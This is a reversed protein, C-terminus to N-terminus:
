VQLENPNFHAVEDLLKKQQAVTLGPGMDRVEIRVLAGTNINSSSQRGNRDDGDAEDGLVDDVDEGRLSGSSRGHRSSRRGITIMPSIPSVRSFRRGIQKLSGRNKAPKTSAQEVDHLICRIRVSVASNRSTQRIANSVLTRIAMTMKHKDIEIMDETHLPFEFERLPNDKRKENADDAEAAGLDVIFGVGKDKAMTRMPKLCKTLFDLSPMLTVDLKLQQNEIKDFNLLENLTSLAIECSVGIDRLTDLREIDEPRDSQSLDDDLIKYGLYAVNLPTRIEHSIFRVYSKKSEIMADRYKIADRRAACGPVLSVIIVVVAHVYFFACIHGRLFGYLSIPKGFERPFEIAATAIILTSLALLYLGNSAEAASLRARLHKLLGGGGGRTTSTKLIFNSVWAIVACVVIFMSAIWFLVAAANYGIRREIDFLGALFLLQSAAYCATAVIRVLLKLSRLTKDNEQLVYLIMGCCLINRTFNFCVLVKVDVDQVQPSHRTGLIAACPILNVALLIFIRGLYLKQNAYKWDESILDWILEISAPVSVAIGFYVANKFNGGDIGLV